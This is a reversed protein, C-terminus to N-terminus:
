SVYNIHGVFKDNSWVITGFTLCRQPGSKQGSGGQFSDALPTSDIAAVREAALREFSFPRHDLVRFAGLAGLESAGAFFMVLLTWYAIRRLRGRQRRARAAPAAARETSANM